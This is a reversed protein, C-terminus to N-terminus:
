RSVMVSPLFKIPDSSKRGQRVEFHLQPFTVAGTTGVTSIKQGRTVVDGRAVLPSETHAYATVFNDAHKILILNGFGRLENGVYTVVGNEAALIPTGRNAQINIGDNFLGGSGAGYKLVVKGQVPWIFGKRASPEALAVNQRVNSGQGAVAMPKSDTQWSRASAMQREAAAAFDQPKIGPTPISGGNRPSVRAVTTTPRSTRVPASKTKAPVSVVQRKGGITVTKTPTTSRSAVATDPPMSDYNPTWPPLVLRQGPYIVFPERLDNRRTFQVFDMHYRVALQSVTDGPEVTIVREGNKLKPMSYPSYSAGDGYVVPVPVSNLLCGGLAASAACVLLLRKGHYVASKVCNEMM